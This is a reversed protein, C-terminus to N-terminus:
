QEQTSHNTRTLSLIMGIGIGLAIMSSGGYSIFPMTMGKTPILNLTSGMNVFTQFGFQFVLGCAALVTFLSSKEMLRILSRVVIFCFLGVIILCILFGFEEGTVSFVFDAHADPVHKKVIGEGPGRGFFGGSKFAELSQTIQYLENKADGAAPYLFQDIRKTVHPFFIYALILCLIGIGFTAGIWLIPIGSLFLQTVWTAVVVVTMGLDPQMM